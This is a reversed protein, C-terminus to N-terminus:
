LRSPDFIKARAMAKDAGPHDGLARLVQSLRQYAEGNKDDLKTAAELHERAEEPNSPSKRFLAWGLDSRYACEQPWLEVAPALYELAGLFNGARLLIEAKRYLTEAQILRAADLDEAGSKRERDYVRRRENDRLVEYATAILAFVEKAEEKVEDLELRALADPHYRKALQFYAKKVAVANANEAVGLLTYHDTTGLAAHREVIERRFGERKDGQPRTKKKAASNSARVQKATDSGRIVVEIEPAVLVPEAVEEAGEEAQPTAELRWAGLADLVWVAAWVVSSANELADRFRIRGNLRECLARTDPDPLREILQAGHESLVPFAGIRDRLDDCLRGLDCHIAVGEHALPAPDCGLANADEPIEVDRVLAYTGSTWGFCELIRRRTLGRLTRLLLQPNVRDLALVASGESGRGKKVFACVRDHEDRDIEGKDLLVKALSESADNTEVMVPMGRRFVVQKDRKKHAVRLAGTYRDRVLRLFLEPFSFEEM